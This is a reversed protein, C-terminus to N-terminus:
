KELEATKDVTTAPSKLTELRTAAETFLEDLTDAKYGRALLHRRFSKVYKKFDSQKSNQLWCRRLQGCVLSKLMSAPHSSHRPIYLHLNLPKEYTRSVLRGDVLELTLDLFNVSERPGSSIWNLRRGEPGFTNFDNLLTAHSGPTQLQIALADDILRRYFLLGHYTARNCIRTEECYSFFITALMCAPSTGMATGIKQRFSTDGFNFINNKMVLELGKLIFEVPFNKGVDNEHLEFWRRLTEIAFDTDINSYMAEADITILRANAPFRDLKKLDRLLDWSDKLYGTCYKVVEQLKYDIFVALIELPTGVTSVIPRMKTVIKHMKPAGYFQSERMNGTKYISYKRQWYKSEADTFTEKKNYKDILKWMKKYAKSRLSQAEEKTLRDYNSENLLHERLCATVYDSYDMIVPGLNKDSNLIIINENKRLTQILTRETRLLNPRYNRDNRKAVMATVMKEFYDIAQEVKKSAAPAVWTPNKVYIKPEYEDDEDTEKDVFFFKTRVNERFRKIDIDSVDRPGALGHHLIEPRPRITTNGYTTDKNKQLPQPM